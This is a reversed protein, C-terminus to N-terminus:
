GWVNESDFYRRRETAVYKAKIYLKWTVKKM